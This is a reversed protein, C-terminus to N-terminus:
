KNDLSPMNVHTQFEVSSFSVHKIGVKDLWALGIATADFIDSPTNRENGTINSVLKDPVTLMELVKKKTPEKFDGEENKKIGLIKRWSQVAMYSFKLGIESLAAKIAGHLEPTVNVGSVKKPNIMYQELVVYDIAEVINFYLAIMNYVYACKGAQDEDPIWIAGAKTLKATKNVFNCKAIAYGTCSSSVDLFLINSEELNVAQEELQKLVNDIDEM